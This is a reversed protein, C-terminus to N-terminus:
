EKPWGLSSFEGSGLPKRRVERMAERLARARGHGALLARRLGYVGEGRRVEGRGTDCASLVVLPM